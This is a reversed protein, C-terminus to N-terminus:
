GHRVRYSSLQVALEAAMALATAWRAIADVAPFANGIRFGIGHHRSDPHAKSPHGSRWERLEGVAAKYGRRKPEGTEDHSAM